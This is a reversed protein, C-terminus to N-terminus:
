PQWWPDPKLSQGDFNWNNTQGHRSWAAQQTWEKWQALQREDLHPAICADAFDPALPYNNVQVGNDDLERIWTAQWQKELDTSIAKRQAVSLDLQMDLRAVILKRAAQERRALRATLEREYAAFEDPKAHPKVAAAVAEHITQRVDFRQGHRNGVQWAAFQKAAEKVSKNGAAVIAKRADPALSGCTRRVLELEAQLQPRFFNEMQNAQQAIQRERHERVKPDEAVEETRAVGIGLAAPALAWALLVRCRANMTREMDM